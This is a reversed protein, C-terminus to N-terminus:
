GREDEPQDDEALGSAPCWARRPSLAADFVARVGGPADAVEWATRNSDRARSKDIIDMM